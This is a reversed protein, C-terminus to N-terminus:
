FCGAEVLPQLSSYQKEFSLHLLSYQFGSINKRLQWAGTLLHHQWYV